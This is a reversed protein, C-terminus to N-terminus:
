LRRCRTCRGRMGWPIGTYSGPSDSLLSYWIGSDPRWVAIDSKNDSDIDWSPRSALSFVGSGLTGAYVRQPVTPSIALAFVMSNPPLGPNLASWSVGGNVSRFVGSEWTGAYVIEPNKPDIALAWIDLYDSLGNSAHIWSDGGNTTKFVGNYTGAYITSSNQPDMALSLLYLESIGSNATHWNEGGDTSKFVSNYGTTHEPM